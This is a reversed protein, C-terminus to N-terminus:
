KLVQVHGTLQYQKSKYDTVLAKWVYIDNKIIENKYTGDWKSEFDLAEFLLKGWRDYVKLNFSKINTGYAQFLDNTKDGNPTFTNPIYLTWENEVLINKCTTDACNNLDKAILCVLYQGIDKYSNLANKNTSNQGDGFDWYFNISNASSNNTFIVDNSLPKIDFDFNSTINNNSSVQVVSQSTASCNPNVLILTVSYSGAYQYQHYPNQINSYTGDGFIWNPIMNSQSLNVFQVGKNCPNVSFSFDAVPRNSILVSQTVTASCNTNSNLLLTVVFTGTNIYTHTPAFALSQNGDGFQWNYTQNPTSANILTISKGCDDHLISFNANLSNVTITTVAQQVCLNDDIVSLTYTTNQTPSVSISNQINNIPQWNYQYNGTGGSVTPSIVVASNSCTILNPLHIQIPTPQNINITQSQSCGNSDSVSVSYIGSTLNNFQPSSQTNSNCYYQYPGIGGIPNLLISGTNVGFCKLSFSQASLLISPTVIVSAIASASCTSSGAMVTYTTNITPSVIISNSQQNTSWTYTNSGSAIITAQSGSCITPQNISLLTQNTFNLQITQTSSCNNADTVTLSYNYNGPNAQTVSITPSNQGTSWNYFFPSSGGTITTTLQIPNNICISPTSANITSTFTPAQVISVTNTVSYAGCANTATAIVTHIGISVTNTNGNFNSPFWQYNVSGSVGILNASAITTNSCNSIPNVTINLSASSSTNPALISIDDFFYNAYNSPAGGLNPFAQIPNNASNNRFNGITIYNWTSTPTVTFTFQQWTNTAVNTPTEFQPTLLIVNWGTQTLPGSSFNIGINKITWPSIVGTGNTIWFSVTYTNGVTMPCSLQQAIYERFLPYPTNYLVLAMMSGGTHPTCTGAFTNPPMTGGTGCATFYDPTGWPGVNPNMNVNNWNSCVQWQAGFTPCSTFTEFSPNTILNIQSQLSTVLVLLILIINKEKKM